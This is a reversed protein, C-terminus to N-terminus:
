RGETKHAFYPYSSPVYFEAGDELRVCGLTRGFVCGCDIHLLRGGAGRIIKGDYEAGYLFTPVHGVVMTTDPLPNDDIGIHTWILDFKPIDNLRIAARDGKGLGAHVLLFKKGGIQLQRYYPIQEMYLQIDYCDPFSCDMFQEATTMGGNYYIWTALDDDMARYLSGNDRKGEILLPIYRKLWADHNGMLMHMNSARRIKQLLPISAKGRDCVDGVIWLEDYASFRIRELMADFEDLCGHLDSIAYNAM